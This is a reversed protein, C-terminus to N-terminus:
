YERSDNNEKDPINQFPDEKLSKVAVPEIILALIVSM